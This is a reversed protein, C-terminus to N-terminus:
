APTPLGLALLILVVLAVLLWQGKTTTAEADTTGALSTAGRAVVIALWFALLAGVPHLAAALPADTRLVALIPVFFVLVALATTQLIRTRGARAFAAAVLIPLPGLHLLWGFNVHLALNESGVFLGLGIFFVQLIVGAVFAWALALYAYRASRVM